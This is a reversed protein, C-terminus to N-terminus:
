LKKPQMAKIANYEGESCQVVYKVRNRYKDPEPVLKVKDGRELKTTVKRFSLGVVKVETAHGM